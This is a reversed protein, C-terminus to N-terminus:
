CARSYNQPHGALLRTIENVLADPLCPKALFSDCGSEIAAGVDAPSVCASVAVITTREFDQAGRLRRSVETGDIDPLRMDLVIVDPRCELAKDIAEQGTAAELVRFGRFRLYEAYGERNDRADDVILVLPQPAM